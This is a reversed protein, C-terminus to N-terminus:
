QVFDEGGKTLQIEGLEEKKRIVDLITQQATEVERLRVPGAYEMEERIITAGRESINKFIKDQVEDAVGKLAMALDKQDVDRLIMQITRDDLYLIDEFVFMLNKIETALKPDKASIAELISREVTSGVLNIIEAAARVGGFQSGQQSFDIREELIQEVTNIMEQSVREMAAFRIVVDNRLDEPLEALVNAAQVPELQTLVLAITQPHEKQIFTLLQTSDVQKLVNFGKVQLLRQIKKIIEMARVDGLSAQLLEKAYEIGGLSIYEQAKIMEYFEEFVAESIKPEVTSVSAIRATITEVDADSLLKFINSSAETGLGILLTAAKTKGDMDKILNQYMAIVEPDFHFDFNM